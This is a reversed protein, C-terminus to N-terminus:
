AAPEVKNSYGLDDRKAKLWKSAQEGGHAIAADYAARAQELDGRRTHLDGKLEEYIAAFSEPYDINALQLAQDYQGSAFLVRILRIRAIHQMAPQRANKMVWDLQQIAQTAEGKDLQEKALMLASLEAYPTDKFEGLLRNVKVQQDDMNAQDAVSELVTEYLVSAQQRHQQQYDVYFRWGFIAGVGLVIGFIVMNGNEKWWKKMAELQQEETEYDM